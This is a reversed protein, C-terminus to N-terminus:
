GQPLNFDIIALHLEALRAALVVFFHWFIM